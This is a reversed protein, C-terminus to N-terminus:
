TSRPLPFGGDMSAACLDAVPCGACLPKARCHEKAHIVILAHANNYLSADLGAAFLTRADDCRFPTAPATMRSLLRLTYADIVFVPFAFAYLLISDATEPGVGRLALLERRLDALPAARVSSVDYGYQKFWATLTKLYATKQNFFGAPRIIEALEAESITEVFRPSLRGEFRAIAKEVNSWATNQTLVAGVMVEYPNEAPWWRLDGYRAHLRAYLASVDIAAATNRVDM